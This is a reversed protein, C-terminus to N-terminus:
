SAGSSLSAPRLSRRAPKTAVVGGRDPAGITAGHPTLRDVEALLLEVFTDVKARVSSLYERPDCPGLGPVDLHVAGDPGPASDERRALASQHVALNRLRQLQTLWGTPTDARPDVRAADISRAAKLRGAQRLRTAALRLDYDEPETPKLPPDHLEAAQIVGGGAADVASCLAHLAADVAMEIGLPHDMALPEDFLSNLRALYWDAAYLKYGVWARVGNSGVIEWYSPGAPWDVKIVTRETV